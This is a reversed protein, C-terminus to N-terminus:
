IAPMQKLRVEKRVFFVKVSGLSQRIDRNPYTMSVWTVLITNMEVVKCLGCADKSFHFLDHPSLSNLTRM